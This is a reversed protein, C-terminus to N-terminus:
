FSHIDASCMSELELNLSSHCISQLVAGETTPVSHYFPPTKHMTKLSQCNFTVKKKRKRRQTLTWNLLGVHLYYNEDPSSDNGNEEPGQEDEDEAIHFPDPSM